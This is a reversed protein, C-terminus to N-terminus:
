RREQPLSLAAEDWRYLPREGLTGDARRYAVTVSNLGSREVALLEVAQNPIVGNVRMKRKLDELKIM